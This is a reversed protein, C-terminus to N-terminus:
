SCAVKELARELRVAGTYLAKGVIVGALGRSAFSAARVLEEECAVGGSLIVPISVSEALEVSSELNPGMLMGDRAIDTHVIAAVGADEFRRALEDARADSKELWGEVAVRGDRTDLGVAIRGPLRAAADRVLAPDRLAATGLIVRDVGMDLAAEISELSRLGGGLQVPIPAAAAVIARIVEGHVPRGSRAGDLDVVHLRTVAQAVFRSAVAAPDADYSTAAEYRGQELRVCQGGLLDIAPIIEFATM